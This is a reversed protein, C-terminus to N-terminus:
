PLSFGRFQKKSFRWSTLSRVILPTRTGHLSIGPYTTRVLVSVFSGWLIHRWKVEGFGTTAVYRRLSPRGVQLAASPQADWRLSLRAKNYTRQRIM